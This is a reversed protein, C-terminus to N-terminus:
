KLALGMVARTRRAQTRMVEISFTPTEHVLFLFKEEDVRVVEAVSKAVASTTHPNDDILSKEGFIGGETVTELVYGNFLLDVEGSKVYYLADDPDGVNFVTDGAQYTEFEKTDRFYNIVAM